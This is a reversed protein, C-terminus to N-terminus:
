LWRRVRAKYGGYSEGFMSLLAREEPVIQFREIYAHFALPGALAWPACLFAAWGVLLLLLGVYMPNRTYRYVSSRFTIRLRSSAGPGNLHVHAERVLAEIPSAVPSRASKWLM